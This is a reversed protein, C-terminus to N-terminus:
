PVLQMNLPKIKSYDSIQTALLTDYPDTLPRWFHLPGLTKIDSPKVRHVVMNDLQYYMQPPLSLASYIHGPPRLIGLLFSLTGTTRVADPMDEPYTDALGALHSKFSTLLGASRMIEGAVGKIHNFAAVPNQLTSHSTVEPGCGNATLAEILVSDSDASSGLSILLVEVDNLSQRLLEAIAKYGSRSWKNDDIVVLPLNMAIKTSAVFVPKEMKVDEMTDESPSSAEPPPTPLDSPPNSDPTTQDSEGTVALGHSAASPSPVQTTNPKSPGKSPHKRKSM